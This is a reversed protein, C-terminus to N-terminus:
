QGFVQGQRRAREFAFGAGGSGNCSITLQSEGRQRSITSPIGDAKSRRARPAGNDHPDM